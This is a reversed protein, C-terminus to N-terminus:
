YNVNVDCVLRETETHQISVPLGNPGKEGSVGPKGADGQHRTLVLHERYSM